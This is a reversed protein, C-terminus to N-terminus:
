DGGLPGGGFVMVNCSHTEVYPDQRSVLMRDIAGPSKASPLFHLFPFTPPLQTWDPLVARGCIHRAGGDQELRWDLGPCGHPLM